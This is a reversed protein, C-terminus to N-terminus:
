LSRLVESIILQELFSDLENQVLSRISRQAALADDQGVGTAESSHLLFAEPHNRTYVRFDATSRVSRGIRTEGTSHSGVEGLLIIDGAIEVDKGAKLLLDRLAELEYADSSDTEIGDFIEPTLITVDFGFERLKRELARTVHLEEALQPALTNHEHLFLAVSFDDRVPIWELAFQVDHEYREFVSNWMLFEPQRVHWASWDSKALVRYRDTPSGGVETVYARSIGERDTQTIRGIIMFGEEVRYTVPINPSGKAAVDEKLAIRVELPDNLPRGPILDQDDGSHVEMVITSLMQDLTSTVKHVPNQSFRIAEGRPDVVHLLESLDNFRLAREFDRKLLHLASSVDGLNRADAVRSLGVTISEYLGELERIIQASFAARELVAFAYYVGNEEDLFHDAIRVGQLQIDTQIDIHGFYTSSFESSDFDGRHIETESLMTQSRVRSQLQLAINRQASAAARKRDLEASGSLDATGTATIYLTDSFGPHTGTHVWGPPMGASIM